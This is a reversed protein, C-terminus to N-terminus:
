PFIHISAAWGELTCSKRTIHSYPQQNQESLLHVMKRTLNFLNDVDDRGRKCKNYNAASVATETTAATSRKDAFLIEYCILFAVRQM